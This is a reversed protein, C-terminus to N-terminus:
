SLGRVVLWSLSRLVKNRSLQQYIVFRMLRVKVLILVRSAIKPHNTYEVCLYAYERVTIDKM